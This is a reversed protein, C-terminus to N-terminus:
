VDSSSLQFCINNIRILANILIEGKLRYNDTSKMTVITFKRMHSHDKKRKELFKLDMFHWESKFSAGFTILFTLLASLYQNEDCSQMKM